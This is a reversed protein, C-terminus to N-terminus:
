IRDRFAAAFAAFEPAEGLLLCGDYGDLAELLAGHVAGGGFFAVEHGREMLTAALSGSVDAYSLIVVKM